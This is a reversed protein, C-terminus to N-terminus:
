VSMMLACTSIEEGGTCCVYVMAFVIYAGPRSGGIYAWQQSRQAWQHMWRQIHDALTGSKQWTQASVANQLTQITDRMPSPLNLFYLKSECRYMDYHTQVDTNLLRVSIGARVCVWVVRKVQAVCTAGKTGAQHVKYGKRGLALRLLEYALM